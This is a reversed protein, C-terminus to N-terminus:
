TTKAEVCRTLQTKADFFLRHIREPTAQAKEAIEPASLGELRLEIVKRQEPTLHELCQGFVTQYHELDVIEELPDPRGLGAEQADTLGAEKRKRRRSVDVNHAIKFLWAVVNGDFAGTSLRPYANLWTDQVVDEVAAPPVHLRKAAYALLRPHLRRHLEEFAAPEAARRALEELTCGTFDLAPAMSKLMSAPRSKTLPSHRRSARGEGM